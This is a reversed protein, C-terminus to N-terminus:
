MQQLFCYFIDSFNFEDQTICLCLVSIISTLFLKQLRSKKKKQHTYPNTSLHFFLSLQMMNHRLHSPFMKKNKFNGSYNGRNKAVNHICNKYKQTKTKPRPVTGTVGAKRIIEWSQAKARFHLSSIHFSSYCCVDRKITQTLYANAAFM